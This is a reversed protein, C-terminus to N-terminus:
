LLIPRLQEIFFHINDKIEQRIQEPEPHIAICSNLICPIILQLGEGLWEIDEEQYPPNLGTIQHLNLQQLVTAISNEVLASPSQLQAPQGPIQLANHPLLLIQEQTVTQPEHIVQDFMNQAKANEHSPLQAIMNQTLVAVVVDVLVQLGDQSNAARVVLLFVVLFCLQIIRLLQKMNLVQLKAWLIPMFRTLAPKEGVRGVGGPMRTRVPRNVPPPSVQDM